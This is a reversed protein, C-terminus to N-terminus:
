LGSIRGWFWPIPISGFGCGQLTECMKRTDWANETLGLEEAQKLKIEHM